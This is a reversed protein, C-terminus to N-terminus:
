LGPRRAPGQTHPREGLPATTALPPGGIVRPRCHGGNGGRQHFVQALLGAGAHHVALIREALGAAVDLRGDIPQTLLTEGLRGLLAAADGGVTEDADGDLGIEADDDFYVGLGIEDGAVVVELGEHAADERDGEILARGDVGRRDLGGMVGAAARDVLRDGVGDRRDALVDRQAARLPQMDGMARDAM